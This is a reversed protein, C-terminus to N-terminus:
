EKPQNVGVSSTCREGLDDAISRRQTVKGTYSLHYLLASTIRLDRTRLRSGAGTERTLVLPAPLRGLQGSFPEIGEVRELAFRYSSREIGILM